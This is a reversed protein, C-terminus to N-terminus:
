KMVKSDILSILHHIEDKAIQADAGAAECQKILEEPLAPSFVVCPLKNLLPHERVRRILQFGDLLPMEIDTLLLHFHKSIDHFDPSQALDELIKWAELGNNAIFIDYGAERTYRALLKQIFTSDEVILIKKSSRDFDAQPIPLSAAADEIGGGWNIDLAIREFDLLFLIRNELKIVGLVYRGRSQILNSPPEIESKLIRHISTVQHVWFGVAQNQRFRSVIIRSKQLNYEVCIGFHRALNVVPIIKGRLNIVGSISPHAGSVPVIGTAARIIERVQMVDIGYHKEGLCFEVIRIKRSDKVSATDCKPSNKRDIM